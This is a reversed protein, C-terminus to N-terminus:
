DLHSASNQISFGEYENIVITSDDVDLKADSLIKMAGTRISAIREKDSTPADIVVCNNKENTGAGMVSLEALHPALADVIDILHQLSYQATQPEVIRVGLDADGAQTSRIYALQKENDNSLLHIVLRGEEDIFAGGYESAGYKEIFM